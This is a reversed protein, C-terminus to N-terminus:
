EEKSEEVGSMSEGEAAKQKHIQEIEQFYLANILTFVESKAGELDDNVLRNTFLM